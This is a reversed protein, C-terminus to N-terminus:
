LHPVGEERTRIHSEQSALKPDASLEPILGALATLTLARGAIM